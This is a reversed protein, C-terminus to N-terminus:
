TILSTFSWLYNGKRSSRVWDKTCILAEIIEPDLSSRFPGVVRGGASFASESAVTSVQVALVDRALTSLIPFTVQNSKWWSLIDFKAGQGTPDVWRIPNERMYVELENIDVEKTGAGDDYLFEEIDNVGSDTNGHPQSIGSPGAATAKSSKTVVCSKYAQFLKNVTDLVHKLEDASKEPYIKNLFYQVLKQKYRPDLICAVALALNSKDWYKDYKTQMAVAMSAISVDASECWEALALKIECFKWWFLNATPYLCGSFLVTADNFKELCKCLSQAMDWEEASPACYGYKDEHLFLLREFARRYYIAQKLMDYTSNWRTPVDFPLSSNNNLDCEAACKQFEEWQLTSNKVIGITARINKVTYAIIKLGDQAVLNLIHCLCRVHFFAGDCILPPVKSINYLKNLETVVERACKDNSSANDLTLAFLKKEINMSMVGKVFESALRTGTHQGKVHIFRLIRKQMLWNEDIWHATICMYGKNQNSTWMDMTTSIRNSVSKLEDYMVKKKAEFMELIEKRTTIRCKFAFSPRLSKIFDVFYEHEVMCFPYEHMIVATYFKQLSEEPDYRFTQVEGQKLELEQQGRKLSHIRNLHNWLHKTGNATEAGFVRGCKNCKAKLQKEVVGTVKNKVKDTYKKFHNWVESTCKKQRKAAPEVDGTFAGDDEDPIVVTATTTEHPVLANPASSKPALASHDTGVVSTGAAAPSAGTSACASVNADGSGM